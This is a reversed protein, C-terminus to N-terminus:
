FKQTERLLVLALAFVFVGVVVFIGGIGTAPLRGERIAKDAMRYRVYGVAALIGGFLIAGLGAITGQQTDSSIFAVAVGGAILTLGTRIWALLTRENALLFRVDIDLNNAPKQSQFLKEFM